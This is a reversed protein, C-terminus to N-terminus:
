GVLQLIVGVVVAVPVWVLLLWVLIAARREGTTRPRTLIRWAEGDRRSM